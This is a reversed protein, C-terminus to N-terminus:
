SPKGHDRTIHTDLREAVAKAAQAAEHAYWAAQTAAHTALNASDAADAVKDKLTPKDANAHGNRAVERHTQRQLIVTLIVGITTVISSLVVADNNTVPAVLLRWTASLILM